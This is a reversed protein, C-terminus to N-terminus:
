SLQAVHYGQEFGEKLFAQEWRSVESSFKAWSWSQWEGSASEFQRYAEAEPSRQVREQLLAVLTDVENAGIIDTVIAMAVWGQRQKILM